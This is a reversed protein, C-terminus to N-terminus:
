SDAESLDLEEVGEAMTFYSDVMEETVEELTSPKWQPNRDKDVIQARVGEGFDNGRLMHSGIRLEMELCEDLNLSAGLTLQRHTVKLSTPSMKKLTALQQLAWESGDDELNQFIQEVSDAIFCRKIDEERDRLILYDRDRGTQCDVHYRRLLDTIDQHTPNDMAVLDKEVQPLTKSDVMRTAVGAKYVDRGKLRFGTLALYMGLHLSLRPLFHSGGVDPFLGIATEPMAFLTRETCIRNEGHVSLGVGGGMTIGDILAIYPVDCTAIRYNLKYEERFFTEGASFNGDKAADTISKVDGGACFAKGGNAKMIIMTTKPDKEWEEIQPYIKKIMSLNLANLTRPRNLTIIGAGGIREFLVDSEDSVQVKQESCMASVLSFQQKQLKYFSLSNSVHRSTTFLRQMAIASNM